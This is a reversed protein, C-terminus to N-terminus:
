KAGPMTKPTCPTGVKQGETKMTMQQGGVSITTTGKSHDGEFVNEITGQVPQKGTCIFKASFKTGDHKVDQMSCNDGMGPGQPKSLAEQAKGVPVCVEMTRPPMSMGPMEMSVTTKWTEGAPKDDALAVVQGGLIVVLATAATNLRVRNSIRM